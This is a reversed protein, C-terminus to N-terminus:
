DGKKVILYFGHENKADELLWQDTLPTFYFNCIFDVHVQKVM